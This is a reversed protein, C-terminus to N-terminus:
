LKLRRGACDRVLSPLGAYGIVSYDPAHLALPVGCVRCPARGSARDADEDVRLAAVADHWGDDAEPEFIWRPRYRFFGPEREILRVRTTVRAVAPGGVPGGILTLRAWMRASRGVAVGGRTRHPWAPHLVLWRSSGGARTAGSAAIMAPEGVDALVKLRGGPWYFANWVVEPAPPTPHHSETM